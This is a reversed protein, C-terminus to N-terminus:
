EEHARKGQLMAEHEKVLEDRLEASTWMMNHETVVAKLPIRIGKARMGDLLTNFTRPNLGEMVMMEDTFPITAKREADEMGKLLDKLTMGQEEPAIERSSVRLAFLMSKLKKRKGEDRINYLLVKPM